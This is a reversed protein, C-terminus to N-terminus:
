SATLFILRDEFRLLIEEENTTKNNTTSRSTKQYTAALQECAEHLERDTFQAFTSWCRTKIMHQWRTLTIACPYAEVRYAIQTYGVSALEARITEIHPQQRQWVTRAADWLPYDIDRQPRTIIVLAPYTTNRPDSTTETEAATTVTTRTNTTNRRLGTRIGRFIGIREQVNEFHHIVEKLLVQDYGDYCRDIITTRWDTTTSTPTEEPNSSVSVSSSTSTHTITTRLFDEAPAKIFSVAAKEHNSKETAVITTPDLFPDIVVIRTTSTFEEGENTQGADTNDDMTNSTNNTNQLLAYAFNGTGGGIDLICRKRPQQQQQQQQHNPVTTNTNAQQTTISSSKRARLQLSARTLTVLQDMYPGPAYFYAEEYSAENAHTAYHSAVVDREREETKTPVDADVAEAETEKAKTHRGAAKDSDPFRTTTVTASSSSSSSSFATRQPQYPMRLEGGGGGIGRRQRQRVSHRALVVLDPHRDNINPRHSYPGCGTTCHYPRRPSSHQGSTGPIGVCRRSRLSRSCSSTSSAAVRVRFM